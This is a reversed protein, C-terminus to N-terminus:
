SNLYIHHLRKYIKQTDPVRGKFMYFDKLKRVDIFVWLTIIFSSIAIINIFAVFGKDQALFEVIKQIIEM